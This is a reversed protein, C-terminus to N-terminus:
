RRGVGALLLAALVSLFLDPAYAGVLPHVRGKDGLGQFAFFSVLYIMLPPLSAGLGALRSGKKVLIGIPVAVMVLLLPAMSSAYRTHLILLAQNRQLRDSSRFYVDWLKAAPLDVMQPGSSEYDEYPIEISVENEASVFEKQGKETLRWYRPKMMIVKFNETSPQIRGSPAYYDMVVLFNKMRTITPNIMQGDRFDTYRLRFSGVSFDQNGPPPSKLAEVTSQRFVVKRHQRTWPVVTENLPYAAGALLLGLLLAPALIRATHVGCARMATIENEAALRAYVLTSSTSSAVLIVWSAMAGTALPLATALVTFGLGPFARFVQFMTGIICVALVALFAFLFSALLERFIYRQLIM